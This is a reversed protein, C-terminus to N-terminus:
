CHNGDGRDKARPGHFRFSPSEVQFRLISNLHQINCFAERPDDGVVVNGQLEPVSLDVRQQAFVACAFRGQHGDQETHVLRLLADDLFVTLDNGDLVGVVGIGEADAHHVLVELKHLTERHEVVDNHAHLRRPVAEQLLFLRALLDHGERLLIAQLNVGVREDLVDGDAHLLARLDQLHEVAVILNENEVLRRGHQRRLLDVLQHLDHLVEGLLALGDEEDGVLERLDHGDRVAARNQALTLVDAGDLRLVGRHLLQRGHHDAAADIEMHFLGGTLGALDHEVDLVHGDRALHMLVVGDLVDAKLHAAALDDADGTDVAVALRLQDVAQGTQLREAATLDGHAPLVDRVQGDALLAQEAHAVDGLVAM